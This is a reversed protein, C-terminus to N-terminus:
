RVLQLAKDGDLVTPGKKLDILLNQSPDSYYM